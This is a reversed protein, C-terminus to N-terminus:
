GHEIGLQDMLDSCGPCPDQSYTGIRLLPWLSGQNDTILNEEAHQTGLTPVRRIGLEDAMARQGIDFNDSSAATLNGAEDQGVAIVRMNVAAPHVGAENIQRAYDRLTSVSCSENENHVLVGTGGSVTVYFDHDNNGPVTLDWMWGDHVAPTSGGVVVALQGDPTKLQTGAKLDSAPLFKDLYPNWFLHNTTTHIVAARHHATRIILNYRNTDHHVLVATVPEAQTKGTRTSTALVKDGPHLSAIPVAIGSALLVKTDPTFSM